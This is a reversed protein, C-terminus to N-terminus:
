AAGHQIDVDDSVLIRTLRARQQLTLPPFAEIARQVEAALRTKPDGLVTDARGAAPAGGDRVAPRLSHRTVQSCDAADSLREDSSGTIPV